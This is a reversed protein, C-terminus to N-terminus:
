MLSNAFALLGWGGVFLPMGPGDIVSNSRQWPLIVLMSLLVGVTAGLGMLLQNNKYGTLGGLVLWSLAFVTALGAKLQSDKPVGKLLFVSGVVGLSALAFILSQKDFLYSGDPGLGLGYAIIGWGLIFLAAGVLGFPSDPKKLQELTNKTVVGSIILVAGAVISLFKKTHLTIM